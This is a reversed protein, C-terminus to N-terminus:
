SLWAGPHTASARRDIGGCFVQWGHASPPAPAVLRTLDGTGGVSVTLTVADGVRLVNTDLAPQSLQFQGIAGNFGPLEGERPIPRVNLTIADSDLLISPQGMVRIQANGIIVINGIGNQSMTFGQFSVELKGPRLPTITTRAWSRRGTPAYEPVIKQSQQLQGQNALFGDGNLRVFNLFPVSLESGPCVVRLPVMQGVYPNKNSAELLLQAPPALPAVPNAVVDLKAAPV